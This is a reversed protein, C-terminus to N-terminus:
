RRTTIENIEIRKVAQAPAPPTIVLLVSLALLSLAAMSVSKGSGFSERTNFSLERIKPSPSAHTPRNSSYEGKDGLSVTANKTSRYGCAPQVKSEDVFDLCLMITKIFALFDIVTSIASPEASLMADFIVIVTEGILVFGGATLFFYNKFWYFLAQHAKKIEAL